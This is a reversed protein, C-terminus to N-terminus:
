RIDWDRPFFRRAWHMPADRPRACVLRSSARGAVARTRYAFGCKGALFAHPVDRYRIRHEMGDVLNFMRDVPNFMRDVPNLMRHAPHFMGDVPNLMRHAPHFMADVPNLMRHAPHFMGDVPNLM